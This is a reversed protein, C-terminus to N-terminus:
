KAEAPENPEANRTELLKLRKELEQMNATQARAAELLKLTTWYLVRENEPAVDYYANWEASPTLLSAHMPVRGPLPQPKQTGAVVAVVVLVIL